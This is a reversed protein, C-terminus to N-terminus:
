GYVLNKYRSNSKILEALSKKCRLRKNKTVQDSAYGLNETVASTSYGRMFMSLIKKCNSNMKEFVERFLKLRENKVILEEITHDIEKIEDVDCSDNITRNRKELEKYWLIKSIGFLYTHVSCSLSFDETKTKRYLVILAEQFIDKTDADSGGNNIIFHRISNYYYGYLHSIIIGNQDRLGNLIQKDTFKIGKM